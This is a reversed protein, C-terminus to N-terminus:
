FHVQPGGPRTRMKRLMKEGRHARLMPPLDACTPCLPAATAKARAKAPMILTFPQGTIEVDCIFCSLATHSAWLDRCIELADAGRRIQALAAAVDSKDLEILVLEPLAV